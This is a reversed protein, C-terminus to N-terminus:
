YAAPGLTLLFYKRFFELEKTTKKSKLKPVSQMSSDFATTVLRQRSVSHLHSVGGGGVSAAAAAAAAVVVVVVVKAEEEEEQNILWGNVLGLLAAIEM